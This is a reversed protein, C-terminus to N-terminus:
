EISKKFVFYVLGKFHQTRVERLLEWKKPFICKYSFGLFAELIGISYRLVFRFKSLEYRGFTVLECKNKEFISVMVKPSILNLHEPPCFWGSHGISYKTLYTGNEPVSVVIYGGTKCLAAITMIAFDPHSTHELVAWATIVDFVRKKALVHDDNINGEIFEVDDFLSKPKSYDLCSVKYGNHHAINPFPSISSGIDLLTELNNPLCRRIIKLYTIAYRSLNKGKSDGGGIYTENYKEYYESIEASTPLENVTLSECWICESGGYTKLSLEHGCLRCFNEM